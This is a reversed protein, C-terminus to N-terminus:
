LPITSKQQNLFNNMILRSDIRDRVCKYFLEILINNSM